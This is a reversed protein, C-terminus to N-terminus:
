SKVIEPPVYALPVVVRVILRSRNIVPPSRVDVEPFTVIVRLTLIELAAEAISKPESDHVTLPVHVFEEESVATHSAPVPEIVKSEAVPPDIVKPPVPPAINESLSNLLTVKSDEAPVACTKVIAPLKPKPSLPFKFTLSAEDVVSNSVTPLVISATFKVSPAPPISSAPSALMCIEPFQDEIAPSKWSSVDKTENEAVLVTSPSVKKLKVIEAPVLVAVPPIVTRLLIFISPPTNAFAVNVRSMVPLKVISSPSKVDVDPLTVTPPLTEISSGVLAMSKPESVHVIEPVHVLADVSPVTQSAPVPVMIKSSEVAPVMVNAGAPNPSNSNLLMMKSEVPAVACVKVIAVFPRLHAVVKVTRSETAEVVAKAVASRAKPRAASVGAKTTPLPPMKVAFAEVTMTLETVIVPPVLPIRVSVLPGQVTEPFQFVDPAPEVNVWPVLRTVNSAVVVMVINDVSIAKPLKVMVVPVAVPAVLRVTSAAMIIEPPVKSNLPFLSRVTVPSRVKLPPFMSKAESVDALSILM